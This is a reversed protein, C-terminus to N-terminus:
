SNGSEVRDDSKPLAEVRQWKDLIRSLSQRCADIDFQPTVTRFFNEILAFDKPHNEQLWDPRLLFNPILVASFYEGVRRARQTDTSISQDRLTGVYASHVRDSADLRNALQNFFDENFQNYLPHSLEHILRDMFQEASMRQIEPYFTVVAHELGASTEWRGETHEYSSDNVAERDDYRIERISGTFWKKPLAEMVSRIAGPHIMLKRIPIDQPIEPYRPEQYEIRRQQFAQVDTANGLLSAAVLGQAIKEVIRKM